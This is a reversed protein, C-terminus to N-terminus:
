KEKIYIKIIMKWHEPIKYLEYILADLEDLLEEDKNSNMNNNKQKIIRPVIERIKAILRDTPQAIPLVKLNELLIRAFLQKDKFNVSYYFHMLESNLIGLLVLYDYKNEFIRLNYITQLTAYEGIEDFAANIKNGLQRILIKSNNYLSLNNRKKLDTDNIYNNKFQIHFRQVNEGFLIKLSNNLKHKIILPSDKGIEEGRHIISFSGLLLKQEQIRLIIDNIEPKIFHIQNNPQKLFFDQSIKMNDGLKHILSTM